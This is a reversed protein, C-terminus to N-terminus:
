KASVAPYHEDFWAKLEAEKEKDGLQLARVLETMRVHYFSKVDYVDLLQLAGPKDAYERRLEALRVARGAEPLRLQFNSSELEKFHEFSLGARGQPLKLYTTPTLPIAM